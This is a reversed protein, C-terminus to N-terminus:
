LVQISFNQKPSSYSKSLFNFNRNCFYFVFNLEQVFFQKVEGGKELCVVRVM